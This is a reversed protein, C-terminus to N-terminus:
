FPIYLNCYLSGHYHQGKNYKISGKFKIICHYALVESKAVYFYTEGMKPQHPVLTYDAKARLVM